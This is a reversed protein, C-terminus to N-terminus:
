QNLNLGRWHRTGRLGIHLQSAEHQLLIEFLEFMQSKNCLTFELSPQNSVASIRGAFAPVLHGGWASALVQDDFM